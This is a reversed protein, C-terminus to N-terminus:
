KYFIGAWYSLIGTVAFFVFWILYYNGPLDSFLWGLLVLSVVYFLGSMLYLAFVHYLGIRRCIWLLVFYMLSTLALVVIHEMHHSISRGAEGVADGLAHLVAVPAPMKEYDSSPLVDELPLSYFYTLWLAGM